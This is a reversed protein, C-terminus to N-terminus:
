GCLIIQFLIESTGFVLKQGLVHYLLLCLAPSDHLSTCWLQSRCLPEPFRPNQPCLISQWEDVSCQQYVAPYRSCPIVTFCPNWFHTHPPASPQPFLLNFERFQGKVPALVPCHRYIPFVVTHSLKQFPVLIQKEARLSACTNFSIWTSAPFPENLLWEM